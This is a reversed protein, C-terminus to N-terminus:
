PTLVTRIVSGDQMADFAESWEGLRGTRSVMSALDISGDLAWQALRSRFLM